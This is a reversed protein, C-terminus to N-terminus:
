KLALRYRIEPVLVGLLEQEREAQEALWGAREYFDRARKNGPHVWLKAEAFGAEQLAAVGAALLARGCGLGWHDPDINLAYVEGDERDPDGDAPGVTVFGIVAGEDNEAVFWASKPRPEGQLVEAWLNSREEISLGDLYEDPM